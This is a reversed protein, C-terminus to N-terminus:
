AGSRVPRTRRTRARHTPFGCVNHTQSADSVAVAGSVRSSGSYDESRRLESRRPAEGEPASERPMGTFAGRRTRRFVHELRIAPERGIREHMRETRVGPPTRM